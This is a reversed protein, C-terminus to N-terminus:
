KRDAANAPDLQEIVYTAFAQLNLILCPLPLPLFYNVTCLNRQCSIAPCGDIDDEISQTTSRNDNPFAPQRLRRFLTFATVSRTWAAIQTICCVCSRSTTRRSRRTCITDNQSVTGCLSSVQRSSNGGSLCSRGGKRQRCTRSRALYM